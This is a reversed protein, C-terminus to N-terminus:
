QAVLPGLLVSKAAVLPPSWSGVGCIHLTLLVPSDGVRGDRAASSGLLMCQRSRCITAMLPWRPKFWEIVLAQCSRPESKQLRRQSGSM